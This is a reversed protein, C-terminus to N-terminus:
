HYLIHRFPRLYLYSYTQDKLAGNEVVIRAYVTTLDGTKTYLVLRGSIEDAIAGSGNGSVYGKLTIPIEEDCDSSGDAISNACLGSLTGLELILGQNWTVPFSGVFAFPKTWQVMIADDNIYFELFSGATTTSIAADKTYTTPEYPESRYQGKPNNGDIASALLRGISAVGYQNPHIGDTGFNMKACMVIHANVIPKLWANVGADYVYKVKHFLDTRAFGAIFGGIMAFRVQANPFNTHIKNQLLSKANNIQTSTFTHDNCGGAVIVHSIYEPHSIDSIANDLLTDFDGNAVGAGNQHYFHAHDSDLGLVNACVTMWGHTYSSITQAYSDGIFLVNYALHRNRVVDRVDAMNTQLTSINAQATTMASELAIIRNTLDAILDSYNAVSLWYDTDSILIGAPVPQISIYGDRGGNTNVICWSPYSKTIDWEGGATITNLAKFEDWDENLTKMQNIIWDLNMEHFDSYPYKNWFM